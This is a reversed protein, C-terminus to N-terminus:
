FLLFHNKILKWLRLEISTTINSRIAYVIVTLVIRPLSQDVRSFDFSHLLSKSISM